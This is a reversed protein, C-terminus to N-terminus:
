VRELLRHIVRMPRRYNIIITEEGENKFKKRTVEAAIFEKEVHRTGPSGRIRGSAATKDKNRAEIREYCVELPTDM